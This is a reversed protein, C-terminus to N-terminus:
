EKISNKDQYMKTALEIFDVGLVNSYEILSEMRKELIKRHKEALRPVCDPVVYFGKGQLAYLVDEDVLSRMVASATTVGINYDESIKKITPAQGDEGYYGRIIKLELDDKVKRSDTARKDMYSGDMKM